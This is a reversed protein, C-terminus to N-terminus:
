TAIKTKEGREMRKARLVFKLKSKSTKLTQAIQSSLLLPIHPNKPKWVEFKCGFLCFYL